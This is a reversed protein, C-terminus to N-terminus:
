VVEMFSPRPVKCEKVALFAVITNAVDRV